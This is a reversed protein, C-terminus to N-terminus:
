KRDIPVFPPVTAEIDRTIVTWWQEVRIPIRYEITRVPGSYTCNIHSTSINALMIGAVM